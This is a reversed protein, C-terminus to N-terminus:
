AINWLESARLMITRMQWFWGCVAFPLVAKFFFVCASENLIYKFVSTM